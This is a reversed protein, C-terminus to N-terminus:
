PTPRPTRSPLPTRSATATPTPSLYSVSNIKLNGFSVNMGVASQASAFAGVSGSSFLTDIVTFQYHGNLFFRMEVGAAWVGMRVEGPAGPPVDGSLEWESLPYVEGGRLRDARMQGNCNLLFRYAYADSGARYLMGYADEGACRNVRVDMEAYFDTLILDKRISTLSAPSINAALVLREGSLLVRNGGDSETRANTWFFPDSFDDRFVEQGLGPFPESTASPQFTPFPTWTATPPFWVITATPLLAETVAPLTPPTQEPAPLCASTLLLPLALLAVFLRYTPKVLESEVRFLCRPFQHTKDALNTAIM